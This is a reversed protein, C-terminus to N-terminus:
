SSALQKKIYWDLSEEIGQRVTHTASYGLLSQIAEISALSHQVDGARFAGHLPAEVTKGTRAKVGDALAQHLDLLNTQEGVGVNYVRNRAADDLSLAARLNAQIINDIYCFDRSTVGDGHITCTTGSLMSAIWKPIVAAYAGNPDQRRGFVNFYRLGISNFGYCEQFVHAYLENTYKSVAYPSIQKGISEEVKPLVPSDGYVSSSSAFVFSKVKEDRAAVLMNLFGDVNVRNWTLPDEISKPVSGLAAQHLVYDVGVVASRCDLEACIDGEIFTFRKWQVDTVESQVDVLNHKKGTSFNDLGVVYQDHELLYSVLNSGIFGAAGTVLWKSQTRKLVAELTAMSEKCAGIRSPLRFM